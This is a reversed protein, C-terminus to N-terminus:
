AIKLVIKGFQKGEEMREFAKNGDKLDFVSDVVPKIKYTNVFQLMNKFDLDSGMSTGFISIQRWFLIQPSLNQIAGLTGGYVAIRAGPRCLKLLDGFNKGGASDIIVDFGGAKEKLIKGWNENKYNAGGRVGLKEAAAIKEDSGSTVYVEAGRAIAFSAAMLAVGGGVGTILIKEGKQLDCKTFVARYATVGALPLSAAQEWSLHEPKPAIRDSNVVIFESFTGNRPMGLVELDSSQVRENDGWNISPNIIIEAGNALGTGDSGLIVPYQIGPYMGKVIWVDRHNLAAAKVQVLIEGNRPIPKPYRQFFPNTNKNTLLLTNM